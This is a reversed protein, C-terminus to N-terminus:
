TATDNGLLLFSLQWSGFCTPNRCSLYRCWRDGGGCNLSPVPPCPFIRWDGSGTTKAAVACLVKPALSEVLVYETHVRLANSPMPCRVWAM